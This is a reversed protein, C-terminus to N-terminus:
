DSTSSIFYRMLKELDAKRFTVLPWIFVPLLAAFVMNNTGIRIFWNFLGVKWPASTVVDLRANSHFQHAIQVRFLLMVVLYLVLYGLGLAILKRWWPVPSALVLALLMGFPLVILVRTNFYTKAINVKTGAQVAQENAEKNYLRARVRLNAENKDVENDCLFLGNGYWPKEISNCRNILLSDLGDHFASNPAWAMFGLYVLGFVLLFRNLPQQIAKM